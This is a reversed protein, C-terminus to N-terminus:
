ALAMDVAALAHLTTTAYLPVTADEAKVLLPIETCGLVIGQTGNAILKAMIGRYIARSEATFKGRVLEEMIVRDVAAMGSEDPIVIDLDYKKRLRGKLIDPDTMTYRSGLLGLRSAGAQRAAEGVPDAIHLFPIKVAKEIAPASRHHTNCSMVLFDAGSQKLGQAAAVIRTTIEDWGGNRELAVIEGFDLSNMLLKAGHVGGLRKQTERNILQYYLSSSEWSLGGVLGITKM